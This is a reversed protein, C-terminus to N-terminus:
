RLAANIKKQDLPDFVPEDALRHNKFFVWADTTIENSRDFFNHDAGDLEKYHVEFGRSLLADRTARTQKISWWQDRTGIYYAIPIKRVALDALNYKEDEIIGGHIAAAAFYRSELFALYFTFMGGASYGWLYLRHMDVPYSQALTDIADHIWEPQNYLADWAQSSNDINPALLIFHNARAAPLWAKVQGAGNGGAGHLIVVLPMSGADAAREPIFFDFSHHVGHVQLVAGRLLEPANKLQAKSWGTVALAIAIFALQLRYRM